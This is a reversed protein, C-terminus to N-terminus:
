PTKLRLSHAITFLVDAAASDQAFGNLAFEMGDSTTLLVRVYQGEGFAARAHGYWLHADVGSIRKTCWGEGAPLEARRSRGDRTKYGISSASDAWIEASDAPVLTFASPLSLEARGDRTAVVRWAPGPARSPPCASGTDVAVVKTARTTAAESAGRSCAAIATLLMCTTLVDRM